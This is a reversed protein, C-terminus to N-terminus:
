DNQAFRQRAAAIFRTIGAAETWPINLSFHMWSEGGVMQTSTSRPARGNALLQGPQVYPVPKEAAPDLMLLMGTRAPRCGPPMEVEAIRALTRSGERAIRVGKGYVSALDCVAKEITEAKV